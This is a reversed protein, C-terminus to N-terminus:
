GNRTRGNWAEMRHENWAEMRHKVTVPLLAPYAVRNVVPYRAARSATGACWQGSM